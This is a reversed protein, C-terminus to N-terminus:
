TWKIICYIKTMKLSLESSLSPTCILIKGLLTLSCHSSNIRSLIQIGYDAIIDILCVMCRGKNTLSVCTAYYSNIRSSPNLLVLKLRDFTNWESSYCYRFMLMNFSTFLLINWWFNLLVIASSWPWKWLRHILMMMLNVRVYLIIM